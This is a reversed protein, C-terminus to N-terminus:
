GIEVAVDFHYDFSDGTKAVGKWSRSRRQSSLVFFLRNKYHLNRDPFHGLNAARAARGGKEAESSHLEEQYTVLDPPPAQRSTV